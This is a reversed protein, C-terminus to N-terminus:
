CNFLKEHYIAEFSTVLLKTKGDINTNNGRCDFIRCRLIGSASLGTLYEKQYLVSVTYQTLTIDKSGSTCTCMVTLNKLYGRFRRHGGDARLYVPHGLLWIVSLIYIMMKIVIHTRLVSDCWPKNYTSLPRDWKSFKYLNLLHYLFKCCTKIFM